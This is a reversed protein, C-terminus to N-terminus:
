ATYVTKYTSQHIYVRKKEPVRHITLSDDRESLRQKKKRCNTSVPPHQQQERSKYIFAAAFQLFSFIRIFYVHM